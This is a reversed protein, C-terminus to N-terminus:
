VGNNEKTKLTAAIKSYDRKGIRSYYVSTNKTRGLVIGELKKFCTANVQFIKMLRHLLNDSFM